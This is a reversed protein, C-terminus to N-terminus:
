LLEKLFHFVEDEWCPEPLLLLLRQNIDAEIALMEDQQFFESLAILDRERLPSLPAAFSLVDIAAAASLDTLAALSRGSWSRIRPQRLPKLTAAQRLAYLGDLDREQAPRQSWTAQHLPSQTTLSLEKASHLDVPPTSTDAHFQGITSAVADKPQSLACDDEMLAALSSTAAVRNDGVSDQEGLSGDPSLLPLLNGPLSSGGDGPSILLM